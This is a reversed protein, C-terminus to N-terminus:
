NPPPADAPPADELKAHEPLLADLREMIGAGVLLIAGTIRM